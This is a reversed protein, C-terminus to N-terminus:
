APGAKPHLAGFARRLNYACAALLCQTRNAAMGFCRLRRMAYREKFVSFPREVAFRLKAILGNRKKDKASLQRHHKNPRHMMRDKIGAAKLRVHRAHTYYAQDGYAAKEDFSILADARETDSVSADSVEVRRILTHDQDVGIHIKYGFVSKKGKRGWRADRDASPKPPGQYGPKPGVPPRARAELFSADVLTGRKVILGKQELQRNIEEFIRDILGDQQLERRFRWLTSHDPTADSLSFGAFRRFSLRDRLQAELGPDGLGHWMGLLLARLLPEAPYSEGGPGHGSRQGLLGRIPGWDIMMAMRDFITDSSVAFSDALSLQGVVRDVMGFRGIEELCLIM